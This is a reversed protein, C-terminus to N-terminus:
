NSPLIGINDMMNTLEYKFQIYETGDPDPILNNTDLLLLKGNVVILHDEDYHLMKPDPILGTRTYLDELQYLFRDIQQRIELSLAQPNMDMLGVRHGIFPVIMVEKEEGKEIYVRRNDKTLRHGLKKAHGILWEQDLPKSVIDTPLTLKGFQAPLTSGDFALEHLRHELVLLQGLESLKGVSGAKIIEQYSQGLFARVRPDDFVRSRTDVFGPLFPDIVKVLLERHKEGEAPRLVYGIFKGGRSSLLSFKQVQQLDKLWEEPKNWYSEKHSQILLEYM